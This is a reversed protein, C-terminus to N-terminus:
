PKLDLIGHINHYKPGLVRNNPDKSGLPIVVTVTLDLPKLSHTVLRPAEDETGYIGSVYRCYM